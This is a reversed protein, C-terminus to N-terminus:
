LNAEYGNGSPNYYRRDRLEDPLFQMDAINNEYDHAYKYGISRGLEKMGKHPANCLHLPIHKIPVNATDKLAADIGVYASNSKPASAVYIAANALIIRAEPMGVM